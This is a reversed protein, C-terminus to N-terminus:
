ISGAAARRDGHRGRRLARLQQVAQPRHLRARVGAARRGVHGRPACGPDVEDVASRGPSSAARAARDRAAGYIAGVVPLALLFELAGLQGRMENWERSVLVLAVILGLVVGIARATTATKRVQIQWASANVRVLTRKLGRVAFYTAFLGVALITLHEFISLEGTADAISHAVAASTGSSRVADEAAGRSSAGTLGLGAVLVLVLPLLLFFLRYAVAAALERGGIRDDDDRISFVFDVFPRRDREAEIREM